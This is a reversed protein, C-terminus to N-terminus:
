PRAPNSGDPCPVSRQQLLEHIKNSNEFVQKVLTERYQAGSHLAYFIFILLAFNALMMALLAPQGKLAEVIGGAVKAGEEVAGPPNV